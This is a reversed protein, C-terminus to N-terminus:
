TGYFYKEHTEALELYKGMRTMEIIEDGEGTVVAKPAPKSQARAPTESAKIDQKPSPTPTLPQKVSGRNKIYNM